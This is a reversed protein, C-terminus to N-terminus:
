KALSVNTQIPNDLYMCENVTLFKHAARLPRGTNRSKDKVILEPSASINLPAFPEPFDVKSRM